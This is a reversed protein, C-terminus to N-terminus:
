RQRPDVEARGALADVHESLGLAHIRVIREALEGDRAELASQISKLQISMQEFSAALAGGKDHTACSWLARMHMLLVDKLGRLIRNGALHFIAQHFGTLTEVRGNNAPEEALLRGLQAIQLESANQTILRTAIGELAAWVAIMELIESKSKRVIFVGRRPTIKVIGDQDLRALAERLPTRSIGLQECLRREDLRLVAAEDYIDITEIAARLALYANAYLNKPCDLSTLDLAM